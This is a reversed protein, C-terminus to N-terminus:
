VPGIRILDPGSRRPQGHGGAGGGSLVAFLGHWGRVRNGSSPIPDGLGAGTLLVFGNRVMPQGTPHRGTQGFCPLTSAPRTECELKGAARSTPFPMQERRECPPSFSGPSNSRARGPRHDAPLACPGPPFIRAICAVAGEVQMISIEDHLRDDDESAEPTQQLCPAVAKRLSRGASKIAAGQSAVDPDPRFTARKFGAREIIAIIPQRIPM